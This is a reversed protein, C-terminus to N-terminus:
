QEKVTIKLIRVNNNENTNGYNDRSKREVCYSGNNECTNGNNRCCNNDILIEM